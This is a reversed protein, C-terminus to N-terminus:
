LQERNLSAAEQNRILDVLQSIDTLEATINNFGNVDGLTNKQYGIRSEGTDFCLRDGSCPTFTVGVTIDDKTKGFVSCNCRLGLPILREKTEWQIDPTIKALEEMVPRILDDTWHLKISEKRKQLREIKKEAATIKAKIVEVAAVKESYSQYIQTIPNDSM